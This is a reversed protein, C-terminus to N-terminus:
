ASSCKRFLLIIYKKVYFGTHNCTIVAYDKDNMDPKYDSGLYKKYVAEYDLKKDIIRIGNVKM